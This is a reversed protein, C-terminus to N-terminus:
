FRDEAEPTIAKGGDPPEWKQGAKQKAIANTLEDASAYESGSFGAAALARGLASTEANELASSRNITTSNRIEEAHGVAVVGGGPDTIWAKVLVPNEAKLVESHIGWGESLPHGERFMNVREAVTVYTKGHINVPM